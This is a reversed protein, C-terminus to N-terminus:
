IKYAIHHDLEYRRYPNILNCTTKVSRTLSWSHRTLIDPTIFNSFFTLNNLLTTLSKADDFIDLNFSM